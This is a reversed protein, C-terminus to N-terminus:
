SQTEPIRVTLGDLEARVEIQCSLRSTPQVGCAEKLMEQELSEPAPLRGYWEEDVYVHCTSCTSCGGCEAIIGAIDHAIAGEMVSLGDAVEVDRTHGQPDVYRIRTM